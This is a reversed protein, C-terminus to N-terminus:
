AKRRHHVYGELRFIAIAADGSRLFKTPLCLGRAPTTWRTTRRDKRVSRISCWNPQAVAEVWRSRSPINKPTPQRKLALPTLYGSAQHNGHGTHTGGWGNVVVNPRVTRIV